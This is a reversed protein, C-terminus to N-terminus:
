ISTQVVINPTIKSLVLITEILYLYNIKDFNFKIKLVLFNESLKPFNKRASVCMDM